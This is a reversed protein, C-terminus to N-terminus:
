DRAETEWSWVKGEGGAKLQVDDVVGVRQESAPGQRVREDGRKIGATKGGSETRICSRSDGFHLYNIKGGVSAAQDM